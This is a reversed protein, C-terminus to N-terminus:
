KCSGIRAQAISTQIPCHTIIKDSAECAITIIAIHALETFCTHLTTSDFSNLLPFLKGNKSRHFAIATAAWKSPWM